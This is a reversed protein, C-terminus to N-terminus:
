QKLGFSQTVKRIVRPIHDDASQILDSYSRSGEHCFEAAALLSEQLDLWPITKGDLTVGDPTVIAERM